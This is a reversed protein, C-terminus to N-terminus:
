VRATTQKRLESKLVAVLDDRDPADLLKDRIDERSIARAIAALIRVQNDQSDPDPTLILFVLKVPLGDATNWEIGTKSRAFTFLARPLGPIRAHPIAIGHEMGTGMINERSAVAAACSKGTGPIEPLRSISKCLEAIADRPTQAQMDALVAGDVM